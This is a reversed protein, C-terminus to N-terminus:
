AGEAAAGGDQGRRGAEQGAARRDQDRAREAAGARTASGEAGDGQKKLAADQENKKKETQQKMQEIQMRAQEEATAPDDGKPQGGKAKMMEVLEDIAGDLSRGARYPETAFKLMEGCFTATKPEAAIMQSLQPLLPGLVQIFENRQQKEANEDQM